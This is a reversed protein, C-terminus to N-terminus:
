HSQITLQTHILSGSRHSYDDCLPTQQSSNNGSKRENSRHLVDSSYSSLSPTPASNVVTMSRNDISNNQSLSFSSLFTLIQPLPHNVLSLIASPLPNSHFEFVKLHSLNALESPLSRLLNQAVGLHTLKELQCLEAPLSELNNGNLLLVQLSTMVSITTPLWTIENQCLSLEKLMLTTFLDKPINTIHNHDLRMVKVSCLCSLDRPFTTILNSQLHLVQLQRLKRFRKPFYTLKNSKLCLHEIKKCDFIFPPIFSLNSSTWWVRKLCRTKSAPFEDTSIASLPYNHIRFGEHLQIFKPDGTSRKDVGSSQQQQQQQPTTFVFPSPKQENLHFVSEDATFIAKQTVSLFLSETFWKKAIMETKINLLFYSNNLINEYIINM